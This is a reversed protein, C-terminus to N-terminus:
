APLEPHPKGQAATERDQFVPFAATGTTNNINQPLMDCCYGGRGLGLLWVVLFLDRVKTKQKSVINCGTFLDGM